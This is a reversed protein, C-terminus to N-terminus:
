KFNTMLVVNRTTKGRAIALQRGDMSWAMDYTQGINFHTVPYPAGGDLPQRWLNGVGQTVAGFDIARSDPAFAIDYSFTPLNGFTKVPPGGDKDILALARRAYQPDDGPFYLFGIWRGDPSAKPESGLADSLQIAQGGDIPVRWITSKGGLGPSWNPFSAYM